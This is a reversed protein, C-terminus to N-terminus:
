ANCFEEIEEKLDALPVNRADKEQRLKWEASNDALTRESLVIRLPIGILDADAFKEGASAGERDDWLTEIGSAELDNHMSEAESMIRNQMEADKSSLSVLHVQYPAVSKPWIIGREDNFVEVVSGMVRSPGIGYSGMIVKQENGSEGSVAFRTADSFRTELPFINGVEITKKIDYKDTNDWDTEAVLERNMAEGTARDIYVRDEGAETEVQFEHSNRKTFDGGSALVIMADLGCRRYVNLYAQKSKEYFNEFDEQTLHFSYMDKMSFERGRLLGSKARPENRFKDQIQYLTIPFDKYSKVYQKVLPTIVDEATAALAYEKKGAGELKFLVDISDWRGTDEWVSKPTLMPISLEQAGLANMEERVIKKIKELVRLGLPLYTYIGAALQNIFGAQTLLRANASDADHPANKSTKGFLLSYRM